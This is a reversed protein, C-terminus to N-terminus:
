AAQFGVRRSFSVGQIVFSWIIRFVFILRGIYEFKPVDDNHLPDRSEIDIHGVCCRTDM